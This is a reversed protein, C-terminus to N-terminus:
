ACMMENFIKAIARSQREDERRKWEYYAKNKIETVIRPTFLEAFVVDDHQTLQFVWCRKAEWHKPTGDSLHGSMFEIKLKLTKTDFEWRVCDDYTSERWFDPKAYDRWNDQYDNWKAEVLMDRKLHKRFFMVASWRGGNLCHIKHARALELARETSLEIKPEESRM